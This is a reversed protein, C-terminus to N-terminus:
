LLSWFMRLSTFALFLAFIRRLLRADLRHALAAGWPAAAVSLPLIVAAGLVNVFGISFPPRGPADWGSIIFGLTGPVAILLGVASATGVARRIPHGYLTMIPV